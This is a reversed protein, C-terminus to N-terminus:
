EIPGAQVRACAAEDDRLAFSSSGVRVICAGGFPLRQVLEFRLGEYFGMERLREILDAPGSFSLIQASCSHEKPPITLENLFM